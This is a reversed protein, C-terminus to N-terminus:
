RENTRETAHAVRDATPRHALTHNYSHPRLAPRCSRHSHSPPSRPEPTPPERRVNFTFHRITAGSLYVTMCAVIALHPSGFTALAEELWNFGTTACDLASLVDLLMLPLTASMLREFLGFPFLLVAACCALHAPMILPHSLAAPTRTFIVLSGVFSAPMAFLLYSGFVTFIWGPRKIEPQSAFHKRFSLIGSLLNGVCLALPYTTRADTTLHDLIPWIYALIDSSPPVPAPSRTAGSFFGM